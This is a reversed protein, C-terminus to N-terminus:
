SIRRRVIPFFAAGGFIILLMLLWVNSPLFSANKVKEEGVVKTLLAVQETLDKLAAQTQAQNEKMAEIESRLEVNRAKLEKTAEIMPAILGVYNVSKTGAEDQATHVLDPFIDELQQAIVGYETRKNKDNKMTFSVTEIQDIRDLLAGHKNLPEINDKLRRDSVDTITGTYEIDGTVDLEVNPAPNAIGIFGNEHIRMREANSGGSRTVFTLYADQSGGAERFAVINALNTGNSNMSMGIGTEATGTSQLLLASDAASDPARVHLKSLPNNTGIGVSGDSAVRMKEASVDAERTHIVFATDDNVSGEFVGGITAQSTTGTRFVLASGQGSNTATSGNAVNLVTWLSASSGSGTIAARGSTDITLGETTDADGNINFTGINLTQTATHNGLNDATANQWATGDYFQLTNTTTNYITLGTAFTGSNIANRQATTMRPLLAGRDTSTMDIIASNNAKAASGISIGGTADIRMKESYGPGAGLSDTYFRLENGTNDTGDTWGEVGAIYGDTNTSFLLGGIQQDASDVTRSLRIFSGAFQGAGDQQIRLTPSTGFGSESITLWDAGADGGIGVTGASLDGYITNGINMENQANFGSTPIDNGIIINNDGNTENAGARVGIFINGSAGNSLNYGAREGLATNDDMQGDTMAANGGAQWGVFTNNNGSTANIFADIGLVTNQVGTASPAAGNGMYVSSANTSADTLDNIAIAGAAGGANQWTTGDYFQLTNTTTNYIILGTAFTGSNIADRQATTMRPLLAGRSTSSIDFIASADITTANTVGIGIQNTSLNGFITGAINLENSATASSPDVNYGIVINDTGITTIDGAQYGLFVNNNSGPEISIGARTGIITNNDRAGNTTGNGAQYGLVTNNSGTTNRFLANGGVGTNTNGEANTGAARGVFTNNDGSSIDRGANNGILTNFLGATVNEGANSGVITNQRGTTLRRGADYGIVVTDDATTLTSAARAGIAINRAGPNTGDLAPFEHGLALNDDNDNTDGDFDTTTDHYADTLDNIATTGATGGANQWTTGDYFQLTNTTTNYITLGTAFTGSNIADRQATTMRPLLVGQSTSDIQVRASADATTGGFVVSGANFYTEAGVASRIVTNELGDNRLAIFGTQLGSGIGVAENGDDEERISIGNGLITLSRNPTTTGIGIRDNASDIVFTNSDFNLNATNTDMDITTTADLTMTDTFDDWDLSNATVSTTNMAVWNTGDFVQLENDTTDYAILGTAPTGINANPDTNRPPLFGQTTADVQLKASNNATTAGFVFNGQDFYSQTTASSSFRVRSFGGNALAITGTSGDASMLIANTTDGDNRLSINGGVVTLTNSPTATGIGIRDTTNYVYSNTEDIQWDADGSPSLTASIISGDSKKAKFEFEDDSEDLWLTYESNNLSADLPEVNPTALFVVSSALDGRIINGISLYDDTNTAPASIGSGILINRNGDILTTGTGPGLFTNFTGTTIAGGAANGIVVNSGGSSSGLVGSLALRGIAINNNGTNNRGARQGIYTNNFSDGANEATEGGIYVNDRATIANTAVNYGIYVNDRGTTTATATNQGIFINKNGGSAISAGANQGLFLNNDVTYDTTADTLDDLESVAGSAALATFCNNGDADCYFSAGIPGTVDLVLDQEGGTSPTLETAPSNPDIMVKSGFVGFVQDTPATVGDQNGSFFAFSEDGSLNPGTGSSNGAIVSFSRAGSTGRFGTGNGLGFAVSDEGSASVENGFATSRLGTANTLRGMAFSAEGTAQTSTGFAVSFDGINADNWRGNNTRGARFAGKSKDFFLRNAHDTDSSYDLSPSGVVFDATAYPAATNTTSVVESGAAGTVQFVSSCPGTEWDGSVSNFKICDDNNPSPAEVDSLGDLASTSGGGSGITDNECLWATGTWRNFSGSACAAPVFDNGNVDYDNANVLGSINADSAAIDGTATIDVTATINGTVDVDNGFNGGGTADINGAVELADNLTSTGIGLRGNAIDGYLFDGIIMEDSVTASSADVNRGIYINNSGTTLVDGAAQGIITNREGTTLDSGAADGIIVNRVASSTITDAGIRNGIFVNYSFNNAGASTRQGSQHGLIINREGTQNGTAANNGIYTNSIGTTNNRGAGAGLFTNATGSTISEGALNGVFVNSPTGTAALDLSSHESNTGIATTFAGGANQYVRLANNGGIRLGSTASINIDGNVDLTHAPATTNIGVQPTTGNNYYLDDDAGPTWLGLGTAPEFGTTNCVELVYPTSTKNLRLLDLNVNLTGPCDSDFLTTQDPLIVSAAGLRLQASAGFTADSLDIGDRFKATGEVEIDKDIGATSPDRLDWLGGSDATATAYTYDVILDDGSTTISPPGDACTTNFSQDPGASIIAIVPYNELTDGTGNLRNFTSDTDYDCAADNITPGADWVCYGYAVGWPDVRSSAIALPLTGGGTPGSGPIFELPEVFGDGDCDGNGVQNTAELVALRAAINMESEAQTRNQVEVMTTLPGRITSVVVTGLLGIIAVAAFLTFFINGNQNEIIHPKSHHNEYMTSFTHSM